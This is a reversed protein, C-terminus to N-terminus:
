SKELMYDFSDATLQTKFISKYADVISQYGVLSWHNPDPQIAITEEIDKIIHDTLQEYMNKKRNLKYHKIISDEASMILKFEAIRILYKQEFNIPMPKRM